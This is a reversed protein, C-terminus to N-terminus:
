VHNVLKGVILSVNRLFTTLLIDVCTIQYANLSAHLVTSLCFYQSKSITTWALIKLNFLSKLIIQSIFKNHKVFKYVTSSPKMLNTSVNGFGNNETM